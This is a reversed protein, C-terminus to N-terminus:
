DQSHSRQSWPGSQSLVANREGSTDPPYPVSGTAEPTEFLKSSCLANLPVSLVTQKKDYGFLM